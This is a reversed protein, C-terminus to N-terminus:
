ESADPEGFVNVFFTFPERTQLGIRFEVTVSEGPSLRDDIGVDPTQRSGKGGMRILDPPRDGSVLMNGGSLEAVRFFPSRVPIASENTFTATIRFVGQPAHPDDASPEMITDIVSLSVM